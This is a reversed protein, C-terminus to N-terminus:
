KACQNIQKAISFVSKKLEPTPLEAVENAISLIIKDYKGEKAQKGYYFYSIDVGFIKACIALKMPSIKCKGTEYKQAQQYRVGIHSGLQEMSMKQRIQM